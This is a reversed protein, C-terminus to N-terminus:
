VKGTSQSTANAALGNATAYRRARDKELCKIVIWDLDGSLQSRLQMAATGRAKTV